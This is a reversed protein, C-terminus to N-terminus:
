KNELYYVLSGITFFQYGIWQKYSNSNMEENICSDFDKSLQEQTTYINKRQSYEYCKLKTDLFPIEFLFVEPYINNFVKKIAVKEKSITHSIQPGYKGTNMDYYSYKIGLCNESITPLNIKNIFLRENNKM